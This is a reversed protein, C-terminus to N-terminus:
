DSDTLPLEPVLQIERPCKFPALKARLYHQLREGLGAADVGPAPVVLANVILGRVGIPPECVKPSM